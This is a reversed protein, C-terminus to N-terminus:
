IQRIPNLDNSQAALPPTIMSFYSILLVCVTTVVSFVFHLDTDNLYKKMWILFVAGSMFHQGSFHVPNLTVNHETGFEVCQECCALAPNTTIAPPLLSYCPWTETTQFSKGTQWSPCTLWLALPHSNWQPCETKSEMDVPPISCSFFSLSLFLNICRATPTSSSSFNASQDRQNSQTYICDTLVFLVFPITPLSLSLYHRSVCVSRVCGPEPQLSLQLNELKEEPKFYIGFLLSAPPPFTVLSDRNSALFLSRSLFPSLHLDEPSSWLPFLLVTGGGEGQCGKELKRRRRRDIKERERKRESSWKRM